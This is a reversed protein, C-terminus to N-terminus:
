YNDIDHINYERSKHGIEEKLLKEITNLEVVSHVAGRHGIRQKLMTIVEMKIGQRTKNSALGLYEEFIDAHECDLYYKFKGHHHRATIRFSINEGKYLIIQAKDWRFGYDDQTNDITFEKWPM